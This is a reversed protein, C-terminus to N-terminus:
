FGSSSSNDWNLIRRRLQTQSMGTRSGVRGLMQGFEGKKYDLDADTLSSYERRFPEKVDQWKAEVEKDDNLARQDTIQGKDDNFQGQDRM